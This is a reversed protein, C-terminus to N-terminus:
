NWVIPIWIFYAKRYIETQFVCISLCINGNVDDKILIVKVM